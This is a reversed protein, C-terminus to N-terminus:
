KGDELTERLEEIFDAALKGIKAISSEPRKADTRAVWQVDAVLCDLLEIMKSLNEFREEDQYSDGVACIPGVLKRVIEELTM